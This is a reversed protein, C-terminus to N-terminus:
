LNGIRREIKLSCLGIFGSATPQFGALCALKGAFISNKGGFAKSTLDTLLLSQSFKPQQKEEANKPSARPIFNSCRKM